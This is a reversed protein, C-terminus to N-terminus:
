ATELFIEVDKKTLDRGLNKTMYEYDKRYEVRFLTVMPDEKGPMYFVKVLGDVLTNLTKTKKM